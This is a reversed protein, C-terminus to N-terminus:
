VHFFPQACLLLVRAHKAKLNQKNLRVIGGFTTGVLVEEGSETIATVLVSNLANEPMTGAESVRLM